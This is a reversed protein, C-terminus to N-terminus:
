ALTTWIAGDWSWLDNFYTGNAVGGFLLVVGHDADYAMAPRGAENGRNPPDHPWTVATWASGYWWVTARSCYGGFFVLVGRRPDAASGGYRDLCPATGGSTVEHWTQQTLAWTTVPGATTQVVLVLSDDAQRYLLGLPFLGPPGSSAQQTWNTGDWIWVDNLAGGNTWGGYLVVIGRTSDFAVASFARPSPSTKPSQQSWATGDFTWTDNIFNDWGTSTAGGFLVSVHRVPDYIFAGGQRPSPWILWPIESWHTGDWTWTDARLGYIDHGGFLVAV